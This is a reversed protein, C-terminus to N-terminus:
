ILFKDGFIARFVLNGQLLCLRSDLGLIMDWRGRIEYVLEMAHQEMEATGKFTRLEIGVCLSFM